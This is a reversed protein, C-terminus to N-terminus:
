LNREVYDIWGIMIEDTHTMGPRVFAHSDPNWRNEHSNDMIATCEITTGKPLEVPQTLAYEVQWRFDFPNVDLLTRLDGGPQTAVYQFQSGRARMEPRFSLIRVPHEFTHSARTEFAKEHPPIVFEANAIGRSIVHYAPPEDHFRFAIRPRDLGPRGNTIYHARFVLQAGPRILKGADEPYVRECHGRFYTALLGQGYLGADPIGQTGPPHKVYVSISRTHKFDTPLVEVARVWRDRTDPFPVSFTQHPVTGEGPIAFDADAEVVLDPEGIHWPSEPPEPREPERGPGRQAGGEIWDIVITRESESLGRENIFANEPAAAHWPPMTGTVIQKHISKIWPRVQAYTDMAMPAFPAGQFHCERCHRDLIPRVDQIYNPPRQATAVSGFLTAALCALTKINMPFEM